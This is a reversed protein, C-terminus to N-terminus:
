KRGVTVHDRAMSSSAGREPTPTSPAEWDISTDQSIESERREVDNFITDFEYEDGGDLVNQGKIGKFRQPAEVAASDRGARESTASKIGKRFREDFHTAKKRNAQSNMKPKPDDDYDYDGFDSDNISDYVEDSNDYVEIGGIDEEKQALRRETARGIKTATEADVFKLLGTNIAEFLDHSGLLSSPSVRGLNCSDGHRIRIDIDSLVLQGGCKNIVYANFGCGVRGEKELKVALQRREDKSMGAIDYEHETGNASIKELEEYLSQINDIHKMTAPPVPIQEEPQASEPTEEGNILQPGREGFSLAGPEKGEEQGEDPTSLEVTPDPSEQPKEVVEKSETTLDKSEATLAFSQIPKIDLASGSLNVSSDVPTDAEKVSEEPASPDGVIAEGRILHGGRLEEKESVIVTLVSGSSLELAQEPSVWIEIKKM